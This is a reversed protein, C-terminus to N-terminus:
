NNAPFDKQYQLISNRIKELITMVMKRPAAFNLRMFGRGEVGFLTGPSLGVQSKNILFQHLESDNMGLSKFDLWMLFTGEVPIAKIQPIYDRIYKIVQDRTEELYILLQNVWDDCERYASLYAEINLPHALNIPVSKFVNAFKERLDKNPIIACSLNLGPINFTKCPSRAVIINEYSKSYLGLSYHKHGSFILDGHIEDSMIVLNYKNAITLLKELEEKRWVRGVPNHPSCFLFLKSQSACEEFHDFDISYSDESYVLPNAVLTRGAQLIAATFPQYVPPQIIVNEKPQTFALVSASLSPIVGPCMVIWEREVNWGHRHVLWQQTVEYLNESLQTYGFFPHNIRKELAELIPKAVPFDMDAIWAPIIDELGFSAKRSDYKICNSGVRNIELDFNYQTSM